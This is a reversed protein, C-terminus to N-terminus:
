YGQARFMIRITRVIIIIDNLLIKWINNNKVYEIYESDLRFQNAGPEGKHAQYKGCLGAKIVVGTHDNNSLSRKHQVLDRPRPGVFSMKGILIVLLQPLEDLYIKQVAHGIWTPSHGDHELKKTFIHEGRRKYDRIVRPKFINFKIFNFEKGLSVRKECYIPMPINLRIIHEISILFIIVLWLPASFIILIISLLIDFLRKLIPTKIKEINKKNM